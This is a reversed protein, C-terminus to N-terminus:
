LDLYKMLSEYRDKFDTLHGDASYSGWVEYGMRECAGAFAEPYRSNLKFNVLVDASDPLHTILLGIIRTNESEAIRSFDFLSYNSAQMKISVICGEQRISSSEGLHHILDYISIIGMFEDNASMVPLTSVQFKSFLGILDLLHRDAEVRPSPVSQLHQLLTDQDPCDILNRSNIMGILKKNEVVPLDSIRYVQFM